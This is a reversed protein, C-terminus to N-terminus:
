GRGLTRIEGGGSGEASKRGAAESILADVEDLTVGRDASEFLRINTPRVPNELACAAVYEDGLGLDSVWFARETAQHFTRCSAPMLVEPPMSVDVMEPPCSLGTGLLKLCAEKRTWFTLSLLDRQHPPTLLYMTREDPGLFRYLDERVGARQVKPEMDVGVNQGQVFALIMKGPARSINFHIDPCAQPAHLAPKRFPGYSFEVDGAHIGTYGELLKRLWVRRRIFEFADQERRFRKSRAREDESLVVLQSRTDFAAEQLSISWVHLESPELSMRERVTSVNSEGM